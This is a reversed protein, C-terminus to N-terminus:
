VERVHPAGTAVVCMLRAPLWWACSRAPCWVAM